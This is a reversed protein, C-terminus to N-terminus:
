YMINYYIIYILDLRDKKYKEIIKLIKEFWFSSIYLIKAKAKKWYYDYNNIGIKKNKIM